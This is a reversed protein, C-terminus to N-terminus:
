MGVEFKPDKKINEINFDIYTSSKIDVPMMKITRPYANRYENVIDDLNDSYVIKSISIMYKYIKNKLGNRGLTGTKYGIFIDDALIKVYFKVQECASKVCKALLFCPIKYKWPSYFPFM